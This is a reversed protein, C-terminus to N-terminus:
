SRKATPSAMTTPTPTWPDTKRQETEESNSLGDDDMDDDCVDGLGDGDHDAQDQNATDPLQRRCGARWGLGPGPGSSRIAADCLLHTGPWFGSLAPDM